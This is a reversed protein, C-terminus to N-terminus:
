YGRPSASRRAVSKAASKEERLAFRRTVYQRSEPSQSPAPFRINKGTGRHAAPALPFKEDVPSITVILLPDFGASTALIARLVDLELPLM